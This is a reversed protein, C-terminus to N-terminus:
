VGKFEFSQGGFGKTKDRGQSCGHQELYRDM